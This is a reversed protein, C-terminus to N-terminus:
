AVSQEVLWRALREWRDARARERLIAPDTRLLDRLDAPDTCGRSCVPSANGTEGIVITLADATNCVPCRAVWYTHPHATVLASEDEQRFPLRMAALASLAVATPVADDL